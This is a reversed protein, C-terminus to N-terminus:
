QEYTLYTKWEDPHKEFSEEIDEETKFCIDSYKTIYSVLYGLSDKGSNWYGYYKNECNKWNPKFGKTDQKIVEEAKLYKLYKEAEERTEFYNGISKLNAVLTPFGILEVESVYGGLNDVYYIQEPEKIEEFWEDFNDIDNIDIEHRHQDWEEPVLVTRGDDHMEKFEDGAKAFPLDKLLKYKKM